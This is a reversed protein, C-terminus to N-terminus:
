LMGVFQVHVELMAWDDYSINKIRWAPDESRANLPVILEYDNVLSCKM